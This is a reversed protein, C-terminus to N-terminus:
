NAWFVAGGDDQYDSRCQHAIEVALDLDGAEAASDSRTLEAVWTM